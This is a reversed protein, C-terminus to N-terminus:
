AKLKLNLGQCPKLSNKLRSALPAAALINNTYLILIDFITTSSGQCVRKEKYECKERAEM